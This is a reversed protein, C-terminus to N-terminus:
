QFLDGRGYRVLFRMHYHQVDPEPETIIAAGDRFIGLLIGDVVIPKRMLQEVRKGVALVSDVSRSEDFADAIYIMRDTVETEEPNTSDVRVVLYPMEAGQPATGMFIAPQSLGASPSFTTLMGTLPSDAAMTQWLGALINDIM